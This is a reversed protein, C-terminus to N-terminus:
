CSNGNHNASYSIPGENVRAQAASNPKSLGAFRQLLIHPDLHCHM